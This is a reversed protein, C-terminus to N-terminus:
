RPSSFNGPGEPHMPSAGLGMRGRTGSCDFAARDQQQLSYGTPCPDPDSYYDPPPPPAYRQASAVGPAALTAALLPLAGLLKM